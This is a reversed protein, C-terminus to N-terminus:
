RSPRQQNGGSRRNGQGGSTAAGEPIKISREIEMIRRYEQPNMRRGQARATEAIRNAEAKQADSAYEWAKRRDVPRNQPLIGPDLEVKQTSYSARDAMSLDFTKGGILAKVSMTDEEFSIIKCPFIQCDENLALWVSKQDKNIVSFQPKGDMFAISKLSVGAVEAISGKPPVGFPSKELLRAILEESSHAKTNDFDDDANEKESDKKDSSESKPKSTESDTKSVKEVTATETKEAKIEKPAEETKPESKDDAAMDSPPTQQMRTAQRSFNPPPVRQAPMQVVVPEGSNPKFETAMRRVGVDGNEPSPPADQASVQM